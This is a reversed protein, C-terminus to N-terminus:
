ARFFVQKSCGARIVKAPRSRFLCEGLTRLYAISANSRRLEDRVPHFNFWQTLNATLATWDSVFQEGKVFGAFRTRTLCSVRTGLKITYRMILIYQFKVFVIHYQEFIGYEALPFNLCPRVTGPSNGTASYQLKFRFLWVVPTIIFPLWQLVWKRREQGAPRTKDVIILRTYIHKNVYDCTRIRKLKNIFLDM